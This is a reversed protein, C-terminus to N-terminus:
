TKLLNAAPKRSAKSMSEVQKRRVKSVSVCTSLWTQLWTQLKSSYQFAAKVMWCHDVLYEDLIALKRVCRCEVGGNTKITKHRCSLAIIIKILLSKNRISVM